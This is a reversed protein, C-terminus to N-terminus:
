LHKEINTIISTKPMLGVLREVPKGEKFILLTPLGSVSYEKATKLNEDTNLKVIKIKGEFDQAIEDLVPGLKRCPGCWPAWFDVITLESSNVVEAVFNGDNIDLANSMFTEEKTVNWLTYRFQLM